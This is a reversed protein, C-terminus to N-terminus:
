PRPPDPRQDLAATVLRHALEGVSQGQRLARAQLTRYEAQPLRFTVIMERPEAAKPRGSRPM